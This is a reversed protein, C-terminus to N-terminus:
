EKDRDFIESVSLNLMKDFDRNIKKNKKSNTIEGKTNNSQILNKNKKLKGM